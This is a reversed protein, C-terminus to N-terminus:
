GQRTNGFSIQQKIQELCSLIHINIMNRCLGWVNPVMKYCPVCFSFTFVFRVTNVYSLYWCSSKHFVLLIVYNKTLNFILVSDAFYIDHYLIYMM